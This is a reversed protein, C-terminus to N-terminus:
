AKGNLFEVAKKLFNDIDKVIEDDFKTDTKTALDKLVENLKILERVIAVLYGKLEDKHSVIFTWIEYLKALKKWHRLINM